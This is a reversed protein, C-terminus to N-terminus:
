RFIPVLAVRPAPEIPPRPPVNVCGWRNCLRDGPEPWARFDSPAGGPLASVIPAAVDTCTTEIAYANVYGARESLLCGPGSWAVRATRADSWTFAPPQPESGYPPVAGSACASLQYPGEGIATAEREDGELTVPLAPGVTKAVWGDLQLAVPASAWVRWGARAEIQTLDIRTFQDAGANPAVDTICEAAASSPRPATALAAMLLLALAIM